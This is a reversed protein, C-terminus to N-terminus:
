RRHDKDCRRLALRFNRSQNGSVANFEDRRPGVYGAVDFGNKAVFNIIRENADEFVRFENKRLDVPKRWCVRLAQLGDDIESDARAFGNAAQAVHELAVKRRWSRRLEHRM